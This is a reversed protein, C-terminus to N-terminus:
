RRAVSLAPNYEVPMRAGLQNALQILAEGYADIRATHAALVSDAESHYNVPRRPDVDDWRLTQAGTVWADTGTDIALTISWVRTPEQGRVRDIRESLTWTDSTPRGDIMGQDMEIPLTTRVSTVRMGLARALNRRWGSMHGRGPIGVRDLIAASGLAHHQGRARMEQAAAHVRARQHVMGRYDEGKLSLTIPLSM